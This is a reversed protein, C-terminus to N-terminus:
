RKGRPWLQGTIPPPTGGTPLNLFLTGLVTKTPKPPPTCVRYVLPSPVSTIDPQIVTVTGLAKLAM